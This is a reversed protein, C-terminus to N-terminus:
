CVRHMWGFTDESEGYQISLLCERLRQAVAGGQGNGMSFEGLRHKVNGIPTIVAATGCAFAETMDGAAAATIWEALSITREEVVLGLRPALTLLSNRTVGPLLSGSLKPTVLTTTGGRQFVFFINMGGMEEINTHHIADLWVVQECGQEAAEAQAILSAAYNGGFKAEGTGGPAARVYDECVWVKVPRLGGSFYDGAPSGFLVFLYERSARVGLCRETAILLPRVYFSTGKDGPVWDRDHFILLDAAEIFTEAPLEAMALRKASNQFRKANADPRFTAIEGNVQRFAKFGEFVSQGYHLVASAPDLSLPCYGKLEGSLWGEGERYPICVMHDGFKQGFGLPSSLVRSRAEVPTPNATPHVEIAIRSSM